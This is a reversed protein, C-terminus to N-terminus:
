INKNENKESQLQEFQLFLKMIPNEINKNRLQM